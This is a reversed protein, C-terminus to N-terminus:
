VIHPAYPQSAKGGTDVSHVGNDFQSGAVCTSTVFDRTKLGLGHDAEGQRPHRGAFFASMKPQGRYQRAPCPEREVIRAMDSVVEGIERRWNQVPAQWTAEPAVSAVSKVAHPPADDGVDGLLM